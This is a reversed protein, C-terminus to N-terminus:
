PGEDVLYGFEIGSETAVWHYRPRGYCRHGFPFQLTQGPDKAVFYYTGQNFLTVSAVGMLGAFKTKLYLLREPSSEGRVQGLPVKVADPNRGCLDVM